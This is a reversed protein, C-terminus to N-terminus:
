LSPNMPSLQISGQRLLFIVPISQGPHPIWRDMEKKNCPLRSAEILIYGARMGAIIRTSTNSILKTQSKLNASFSFNHSVMKTKLVTKIEYKEFIKKGYPKQILKQAKPRTLDNIM